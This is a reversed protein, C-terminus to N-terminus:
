SPQFHNRAKEELVLLLEQLTEADWRVLGCRTADYWQFDGENTHQLRWHLYTGDNGWSIAGLAVSGDSKISIWLQSDWSAEVNLPAQPTRYAAIWLPDGPQDVAPTDWFPDGREVVTPVGYVICYLQDNQYFERLTQEVISVFSLMAPTVQSPYALRAATQYSSEIVPNLSLEEPPDFDPESRLFQPKPPEFAPIFTLRILEPAFDQPQEDPEPEYWEFGALKSTDDVTLYRTEFLLQYNGSGISVATGLDDSGSVFIRSSQPVTFPVVIARITDSQLELTESTYIETWYSGFSGPPFFQVFTPYWIFGQRFGTDWAEDSIANIREPADTPPHSVTFIRALTGGLHLAMFLKPM